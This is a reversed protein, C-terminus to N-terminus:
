MWRKWKMEKYWPEVWDCASWSDYCWLICSGVFPYCLLRLFPDFWPIKRLRGIGRNMLLGIM